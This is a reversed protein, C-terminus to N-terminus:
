SNTLFTSEIILSIPYNNNLGLRLISLLVVQMSIFIMYSLVAKKM